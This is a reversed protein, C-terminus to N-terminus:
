FIRMCYMIGHIYISVITFFSIQVYFLCLARYVSMCLDSVVLSLIHNKMLFFYFRFIGPKSRKPGGNANPDFEVRGRKRIDM